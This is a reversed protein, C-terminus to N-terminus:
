ADHVYLALDASEWSLAGDPSDVYLTLSLREGAEATSRFAASIDFVVLGESDMPWKRFEGGFAPNTEEPLSGDAMNLFVRFTVPDALPAVGEDDQNVRRSPKSGTQKQPATVQGRRLRLLAREVGAADVGGPVPVGRLRHRSDDVDIRVRTEDNKLQTPYRMVHLSTTQEGALSLQFDREIDEIEADPDGLLAMLKCQAAEITIDAASVFGAELLEASTEYIGLEVPGAPCQSVNALLVENTARAVRFADLFTDDTPINGSGFSLIVAARLGETKLQSQAIETNQIGPSIFIPLINTDLSTRINFRRAAAPMPRLLSENIVIRDGATGLPALNPTRYATYSVTDEKVARNGRLLLGGFFICVEPVVPLTPVSALPNAIEIATLMNQTADNRDAVLASRQAGTIVVPKGLERLMFSLACATYVMTDTGHLVVFGNYDTYNDHICEAMEKWQQPAVNCSDLPEIGEYADVRYPLRELEPTRAKLEAWPVVLQPSEPDDPDRPRSGITGGTYIVLVGAEASM